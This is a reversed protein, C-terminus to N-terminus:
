TRDEESTPAWWAAALDRDVNLLKAIRHADEPLPPAITWARLKAPTMTADRRLLVCVGGARCVAEWYTRPPSTLAGGDPTLGLLRLQEPTPPQQATGQRWGRATATDVHLHMGIERVTWGLARLAFRVRQPLQQAEVHWTALAHAVFAALEPSVCVERGQAAAHEIRALHAASIGLRKAAARLSLEVLTRAQEILPADALVVVPGKPGTRLNRLDEASAGAAEALMSRAVYSYRPPIAQAKQWRRVARVGVRCRDAVQSLTFEAFLAAADVM